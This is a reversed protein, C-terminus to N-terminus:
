STVPSSSSFNNKIMIRSNYYPLFCFLVFRILILHTETSYLYEFGHYQKSRVNEWSATKLNYMIGYIYKHFFFLGTNNKSDYLVM